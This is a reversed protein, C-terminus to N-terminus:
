VSTYAADYGDRITLFRDHGLKYQLRPNFHSLPGGYAPLGAALQLVLALCLLAAMWFLVKM